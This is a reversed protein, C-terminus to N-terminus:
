NTSLTHQNIEHLRYISKKIICKLYIRKEETTVREKGLLIGVSAVIQLVDKVNNADKLLICVGCKQKDDNNM